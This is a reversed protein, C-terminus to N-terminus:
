PSDLGSTVRRIVGEAEEAGEPDAGGQLLVLTEDADRRADARYGMRELAMARAATAWGQGSQSDLRAFLEIAFTAWDVAAEPDGLELLERAISGRSLAVVIAASATGQSRAVAKEARALVAAHGDLAARHEGLEALQIARARLANLVIEHHDSSALLLAIRDAAAIAARADGRRRAAWQVYFEAWAQELPDGSRRAEMVALDATVSAAAINRQEVIQAWALYGLHRAMVAPDGIARAASVSLTFVDHWRGWEPWLDSFWHLSEATGIVTRHWGNGAAAEFAALWHASEARLWASAGARDRFPFDAEPVVADEEFFGGADATRALLWSHLASRLERTTESGEEGLLRDAAYVKLLDHL